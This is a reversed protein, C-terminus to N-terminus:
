FIQVYPDNEALNFYDDGHDHNQDATFVKLIRDFDEPIGYIISGNSAVFGGQWKKAVPSLGNIFDIQPNGDNDFSQTDIRLISPANAPVAHIIGGQTTVGGQWKNKENSLHQNSILTVEDNETNIYLVSNTDCPMGYINGDSGMAGGLWKYKTVGDFTPPIPILTVKGPTSVDPNTDIKLVCDHHSPFAYIAGNRPSKLGGHWKWEGCGFDGITRVEDSITDIQLISPATYPMGYVCGDDGLIGGYWKNQGHFRPGIYSTECTDVNIKM